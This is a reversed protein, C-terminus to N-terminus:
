DDISFVYAAGAPTPPDAPPPADPPLLPEEYPAGVVLYGPAIDLAYGFASGSPEPAKVYRAALGGRGRAFAYAAGANVTSKDNPNGPM